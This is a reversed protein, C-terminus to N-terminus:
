SRCTPEVWRTSVKAKKKTEPDVTSAVVTRLRKSVPRATAVDGSAAGHANARVHYTTTEAMCQMMEGGLRALVRLNENTENIRSVMNPLGSWNNRKVHKADIPEAPINQIIQNYDRLINLQSTRSTQLFADRSGPDNGYKVADNEDLSPGAAVDELEPSEAPNELRAADRAQASANAFDDVTSSSPGPGQEPDM